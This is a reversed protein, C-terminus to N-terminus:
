QVTTEKLHSADNLLEIQEIDFPNIISLATNEFNLNQIEEFKAIQFAILIAKKIYGHTSLLITKGKYDKKWKEVVPVLTEVRQELSEGGKNKFIFEDHPTQFKERESPSWTKGEMEGFSVERLEKEIFFPTQPHYKAIAEGTQKARQLPSSFIADFNILRLRNAIKQAQELGAENLEIDSKGQIRNIANWHTLGHRVIYVKM